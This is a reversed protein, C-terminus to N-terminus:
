VATQCVVRVGFHATPVTGYRSLRGIPSHATRPGMGDFLEPIVNVALNLRIAESAIKKVTLRHQPITVFIEMPSSRDRWGRCIRSPAQYGRIAVPLKM